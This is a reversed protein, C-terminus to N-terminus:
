SGLLAFHVANQGITIRDDHKLEKEQIPEGNVLTGNTSGLDVIWFQEGRREVRAHHGSTAPDRLLLDNDPSRGMRLASETARYTHGADPGSEITLEAQPGGGPTARLVPQTPGGMIATDPIAPPTPPPPQWAPMLTTSEHPADAGAGLGAPITAAISPEVHPPQWPPPAPPHSEAPAAPEAAAPVAGEVAGAALEKSTASAHPAPAAAVPPAWAAAPSVEPSSSPAGWSPAAPAAPEESKPM